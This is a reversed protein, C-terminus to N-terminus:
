RHPIRYPISSRGVRVDPYKYAMLCDRVFGEAGGPAAPGVILEVLADKALSWWDFETYQVLEHRRLRRKVGPLADTGPEVTLFGYESEDRYAEHKFYLSTHLAHLSSLSSLDRLFAAGQEGGAGLTGPLEILPFMAAVLRRQLESLKGDEYTVHFLSRNSARKGGVYAYAVELAKADFGLAYGTGNDAYARWQSLSDCLTSFCCINYHASQKLGESIFAEYKDLFFRHLRSDAQEVMHRLHDVSQKMGHHIESPDNMSFVDTFWLIGTQLIAHLGAYDTYHYIVNPTPKAAVSDLFPEIAAVAAADFRHLAAGLEGHQNERHWAFVRSGQEM